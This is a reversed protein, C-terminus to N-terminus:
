AKRPKLTSLPQRNTGPEGCITHKIWAPLCGANLHVDLINLDEGTTHRHAEQRLLRAYTSYGKYWNTWAQTNRLTAYEGDTSHPTLLSTLLELGNLREWHPSDLEGKLANLYHTYVAHHKTIYESTTCSEDIRQKLNELKNQANHDNPHEDLCPLVDRSITNLEAASAHDAPTLNELAWGNLNAHQNNRSQQITRHTRRIWDQWQVCKEPVARVHAQETGPASSLAHTFSAPIYTKRTIRTGYHPPELPVFNPSTSPYEGGFAHYTYQASYHLHALAKQTHNLGYGSLYTLIEPTIPNLTLPAISARLHGAVEAPILNRLADGITPADNDNVPHTTLLHAAANIAADWYCLDIQAQRYITRIDTHRAEDNRVTNTRTNDWLEVANEWDHRTEPNSTPDTDWPSHAYNHQATAAITDGHRTLWTYYGSHCLEEIPALLTLTQQEPNLAWISAGGAYIVDECRLESVIRPDHLLHLWTNINIQTELDNHIEDITALQATDPNLQRQRVTNDGDIIIAYFRTLTEGNHHTPLKTFTEHLFDAREPLTCPEDPLNVRLSPGLTNDTATLIILSHDPWYGHQHLACSLVDYENRIPPPTDYGSNPINGNSINGNPINNANM